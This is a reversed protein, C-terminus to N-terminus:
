VSTPAELSEEILAELTLGRAAALAGTRTLLLADIDIPMRM